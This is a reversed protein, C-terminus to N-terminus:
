RIQRAHRLRRSPRPDWPRPRFTLEDNRAFRPLGDGSSSQKAASAIVAILRGSTSVRVEWFGRLRTSTSASCACVDVEHSEFKGVGPAAALRSFDWHECQHALNARQNGDWPLARVLTLAIRSRRVPGRGECPFLNSRATRNLWRHSVASEPMVYAVPQLVANKRHHRSRPFRGRPSYIITPFKTMPKHANIM